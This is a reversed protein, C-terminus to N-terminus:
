FTQKIVQSEGKENLKEIERAALRQREILYRVKYAGAGDGGFVHLVVTNGRTTLYVGRPLTVDVLDAYTKAPFQIPRGNLTLSMSDVVCNPVAGDTGLYKVSAAAEKTAQNVPICKLYVSFSTGSNRLKGSMQVSDYDAPLEAPTQSMAAGM